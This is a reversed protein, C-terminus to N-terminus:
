LIIKALKPIEKAIKIAIDGLELIQEKLVAQTENSASAEKVVEILQSYIEMDTNDLTIKDIEDKSLAQLDNIEDKYIGNFAARNQLARQKLREKYSLSM